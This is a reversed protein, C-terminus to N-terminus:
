DIKLLREFGSDYGGEDNRCDGGELLREVLIEVIDELESEEVGKVLYDVVDDEIGGKMYELEEYSWLIMIEWDVEKMEDVVEVGNKGRMRIDSIVVEAEDEGILCLG